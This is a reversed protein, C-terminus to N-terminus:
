STPLTSSISRLFELWRQAQDISVDAIKEHVIMNLMEARQRDERSLTKTSHLVMKAEQCHRSDRVYQVLEFGDRGPLMLDVILLDYSAEAVSEIAAEAHEVAEVQLGLERFIRSLGYRTAEDDDVILVRRLGQFHSGVASGESLKAPLAAPQASSEVSSALSRPIRVTFSSGRGVASEVDIRGGLVETLQRALSLGLGTGKIGCQHRGEVQYFEEFIRDHDERAIGVGTDEVRFEVQEGVESVVLRVHGKATFKLANSLLNRLVQTLRSEDTRVPGLTDPIEFILEVREKLLPRMVGKLGKLMDQLSFDVLSLRVRGSEFKAADLIENVLEQFNAASRQILSVQHRQERNLSGDMGSLLMQSLNLISNLPTRFEHTVNSLFRNKVESARRLSEAREDLEAYLAVVGRNTEELERNLEQVEEHHQELAELAATLEENQRRLEAFPDGSEERELELQLRSLTGDALASGHVRGLSKGGRLELRGGTPFKFDLFDLLRGAGALGPFEELRDSHRRTKPAGRDGGRHASAAGALALGSSVADEDYGFMFRGGGLSLICRAMESSATVIRAQDQHDFGLGEAIRRARQRVIIIDGDERLPVSLLAHKM